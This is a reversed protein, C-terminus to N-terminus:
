EKEKSVLNLEVYGSGIDIKAPLVDIVEGNKMSIGKPGVVFGEVVDGHAYNRGNIARIMVVRYVNGYEIKRIETKLYRKRSLEIIQFHEDMRKVAFRYEQDPLFVNKITVEDIFCMNSIESKHVYGEVQMGDGFSISVIIRDDSVCKLRGTVSDGTKHAKVFEHFNNSYTRKHSVRINEFSPNYSLLRVNIQQGVKLNNRLDGCYNWMLESVNLYGEIEEIGLTLKAFVQNVESVRGEINQGPYKIFFLESPNETVRKISFMIKKKSSDINIIKGLVTDGIKYGRLSEKKRNEKGWSVEDLPIRAELGAILECLIYYQSIQRIVGETQNGVQYKELKLWPDELGYISCVFTKYGANFTKILVRVDQGPQYRNSLEEFRSYTAFERPVYGKLERGPFGVIFGRERGDSYVIMREIRADIPTEKYDKFEDVLRKPDTDTDVNSLLVKPSVEHCEVINVLLEDNIQFYKRADDVKLSSLKENDIDVRLGFVEISVGSKSVERVTVM